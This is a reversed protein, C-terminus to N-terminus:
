RAVSIWANECTVPPPRAALRARTMGSPQVGAQVAAGPRRQRDELRHGLDAPHLGQLDLLGQVHADAHDGHDRRLRDVSTSAIRSSRPTSDQSSPSMTLAAPRRRRPRRPATRRPVSISYVQTIPVYPRYPRAPREVWRPGGCGYRSRGTVTTCAVPAASSRDYRREPIAGPGTLGGRSAVRPPPSPPPRRGGGRGRRGRRRRLGDYAAYPDSRTRKTRLRSLTSRHFPHVGLENSLRNADFGGGDYKLERAVKTQKAKARGRGM